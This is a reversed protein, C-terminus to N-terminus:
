FNAAIISPPSNATILWKNSSNISGACNMFAKAWGESKNAENTSIVTDFSLLNSNIDIVGAVPITTPQSVGWSYENELLAFIKGESVLSDIITTSVTSGVFMIYKGYDGSCIGNIEVNGDSNGFM